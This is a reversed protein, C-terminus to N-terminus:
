KLKNKLPETFFYQLCVALILYRITKQHLALFHYISPEIKQGSKNKRHLYNYLSNSVSGIIKIQLQTRDM